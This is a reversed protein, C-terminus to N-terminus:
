RTLSWECEHIDYLASRELMGYRYSGELKGTYKGHLLEPQLEGM